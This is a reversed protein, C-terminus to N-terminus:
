GMSLARVLQQATFALGTLLGGVVIVDALGREPQSRAATRSPASPERLWVVNGARRMVAELMRAPEYRAGTATARCAGACM